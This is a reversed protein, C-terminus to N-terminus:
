FGCDPKTPKALAETVATRAEAFLAAMAEDLGRASPTNWDLPWSGSQRFSDTSVGQWIRVRWRAEFVSPVGPAPSILMIEAQTRCNEPGDDQAQEIEVSWWPWDRNSRNSTDRVIGTAFAGKGRCEDVLADLEAMRYSFSTTM